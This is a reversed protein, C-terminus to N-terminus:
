EPELSGGLWEGAGREEDVGPRVLVARRLGRSKLERLKAAAEELTEYVGQLRGEAIVVYKGRAERELRRRLRRWAADDADSDEVVAHARLWLEIAEEVAESPTLGRRAAEAKLLRVKDEPIRKLVLPLFGV